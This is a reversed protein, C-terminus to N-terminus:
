IYHIFVGSTCVYCFAAASLKVTHDFRAAGSCVGCDIASTRLTIHLISLSTVVCNIVTFSDFQYSQMFSSIASLSFCKTSQFKKCYRLLVELRFIFGLM